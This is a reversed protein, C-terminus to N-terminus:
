RRVWKRTHMKHYTIMTSPFTSIVIDVVTDTMIAIDIAMMVKRVVEVMSVGKVCGVM